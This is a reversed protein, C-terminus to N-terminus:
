EHSVATPWFALAIALLAPLLFAVEATRGNGVISEALGRAHVVNGLWTTVSAEPPLLPGGITAAIMWFASLAATALTVIPWRRYAAALPLALFPLLPVLFRPGPVHGGFPLYYASNYALMALGLGGILTTERRAGRHWLLVLGATAVLTVPTLVFLGRTSVLLDLAARLHPYTLGFFGQGNAGIVDHGTTGLEKVANSYGNRLPSGFAWANYAALPILGAIFGGCYALARRQWAKGAIAYIGLCVGVIATPLEAFVALGALLGGGVLLGLSARRRERLLLAFSGFGLAASLDHAFYATAFPLLMTGLGLLLATALGAGPFMEEVVVRVLLLLAFFAAVVLLNVQWIARESM